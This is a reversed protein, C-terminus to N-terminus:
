GSAEQNVEGCSATYRAAFYDQLLGHIFMYGGGVKRLFIREAAYDLFDVYRRPVSSNYRLGLRLILHQLCARGGYRLGIGLVIISGSLLGFILGLLLGARLGNALGGVLGISLGVALGSIVAIRGSQYIGENPTNKTPIEGSSLGAIFATCLKGILGLNCGISLGVTM